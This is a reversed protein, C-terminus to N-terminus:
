RPTLDPQNAMVQCEKAQGMKETHTIPPQPHVAGSWSGFGTQSYTLSLTSETGHFNPCKRTMIIMQWKGKRVVQVM